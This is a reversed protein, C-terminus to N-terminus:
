KGAYPTQQLKRATDLQSQDGGGSSAMQYFQVAKHRQHLLDFMEGANLQARKRLWDSCDPQDAAKVYNEAAEAIENQGRQTDALGFWALQLRADIFYGPKGADALVVKYLGIAAQGKGEDKTLNAEELRFLFDRPFQAALGHQVALAEPYRGDHRLFLSLVTRSEVTTVVGHAASERLLQLGREKNGGVGVIGVVMRVWRPLSAVAFQQIGIAMKADAYDPDIKLVQESDGRAAYGLRAAAVFSHDVLTIFVAHIGRLYGRAFYANKDNPNAKLHADALRIGNNTLDEIRQRTAASVPVSRKSTLFNDHAYYTTDLLDQHYLERFVTAMQVYGYAMPDQPHDKLVADFRSIAGDYDLNYIHEYGERVVPDFNLPDSHQSPDYTAPPAAIAQFGCFLVMFTLAVLRSLAGPRGYACEGFTRHVPLHDAPRWPVSVARQPESLEGLWGLPNKGLYKSAGATQFAEATSEGFRLV